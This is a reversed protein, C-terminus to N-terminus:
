FKRIYVKKGFLWFLLAILGLIIFLAIMLILFVYGFVLAAAIMLIFILPSLIKSFLSMKPKKKGRKRPKLVITKM